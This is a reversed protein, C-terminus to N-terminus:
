DAIGEISSPVWRRTLAVAGHLASRELHLADRSGWFNKLMRLNLLSKQLAAYGDLVDTRYVPAAVWARVEPRQYRTNTRTRVFPLFDGWLRGLAPSRASVFPLIGLHKEVEKFMFASTLPMETTLFLNATKVWSIIRDAQQRNEPFPQRVYTPTVLKGDYWDKGCSERFKGTWFTKSDNVKCNYRRLYDLVTGVHLTPVIIDDGYVWVGRSAKFVSSACVPLQLSKLCAAVCITYFYMSEVPFCLASGMSAFKRLSIIEGDPLQARTSRCADIGDRFDPYADFMRLALDRPVRDSAESLDITALRGTRSGVRALDQNVDQNLFNVHGKSFRSHEIADVLLDKIGQQAYQMCTPELAITRPAKLTKPVTVVKVPQEDQEPVLTVLEAEESDHASTNYACEFLPFYADLREHWLRWRYKTNGNNRDATGGPGHKPFFEGDRLRYILSDWLVSSVASFEAIDESTPCFSDFSHEIEVFATIASREREPTCDLEVKKFALCIQRICGIYHFLDSDSTSTQEYIRGTERNFIQGIAGQL